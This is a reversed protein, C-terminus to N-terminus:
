GSGSSRRKRPGDTEATDAEATLTRALERAATPSLPYAIYDPGARVMLLLPRGPRVVLGSALTMAGALTKIMM